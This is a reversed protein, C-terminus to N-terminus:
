HTENPGRPNWITASCISSDSGSRNRNFIVFLLVRTDFRLFRRIIITSFYSSRKDV